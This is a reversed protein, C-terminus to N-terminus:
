FLTCTINVKIFNKFDIIFNQNIEWIIVVYREVARLKIKNMDKLVDLMNPVDKNKQNKSHRSYSAKSAGPPQKRMETASNDSDCINNSGPQVLPSCPPQLSSLQPPLPPPPPPYPLVSSSFPDPDVSLQATRSSPMQGLGSPEDNLDFSGLFLTTNFFWIFIRKLTVCLVLKFRFLFSKQLAVLIVIYSLLLGM